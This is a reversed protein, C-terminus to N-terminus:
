RNSWNPFSRNETLNVCEFNKIM